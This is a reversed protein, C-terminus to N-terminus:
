GEKAIRLVYFFLKIERRQEEVKNSQVYFGYHTNLKNNAADYAEAYIVNQINVAKAAIQMAQLDSQPFNTIM